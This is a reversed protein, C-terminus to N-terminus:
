GALGHGHRSPTRHAEAGNGALAGLHRHCEVSFGVGHLGRRQLFLLTRVIRRKRIKFVIQSGDRQRGSFCPLRLLQSRRGKRPGVVAQLLRFFGTGDGDFRRHRPVHDDDFVFIGFGEVSVRHLIIGPGGVGVQRLSREVHHFFHHRQAGGLIIQQAAAAAHIDLVHFHVAGILFEVGIRQVLLRNLDVLLGRHQAQVGVPPYRVVQLQQRLFVSLERIRGVIGDVLVPLGGLIHVNRKGVGVLHRSGGGVYRCAGQQGFRFPSLPVSVSRYETQIQPRLPLEVAIRHYPVAVGQLEGELMGAPDAFVWGVRRQLPHADHHIGTM